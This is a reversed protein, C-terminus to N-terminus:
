SKPRVQTRIRGRKSRVVVTGSKLEAGYRFQYACRYTGQFAKGSKRCTLHKDTGRTYARHYKVRLATRAASIATDRDLGYISIGKVKGKKAKASRTVVKLTSSLVYPTTLSSATVRNYFTGDRPPFRVRVDIGVGFGAALTGLACTVTGAAQACSGQSPVASEFTVGGPLTDTVVVGVADSPGQNQLSIRYTRIPSVGVFIFSQTLALGAFPTVTTEVTSANDDTDPDAVDSVASAENTVLGAAQPRVKIEIGVQSGAALSGARCVVTGGSLLCAGQSALVSELSAGAPLADTLTVGTALAPGENRISFSYTLVQGASVPNPAGSATLELDARGASRPSGGAWAQAVQLGALMTLVLALAVSLRMVRRRVTTTVSATVSTIPRSAHMVIM